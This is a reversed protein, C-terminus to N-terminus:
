MANEARDGRCGGVLSATCPQSAPTCSQTSTRTGTYNSGGSGLGGGVLYGKYNEPTGALDSNAYTSCSSSSNVCSQSASNSDVAKIGLPGFGQCEEAEICAAFNSYVAAGFQWVIPTSTTSQFQMTWTVPMNGPLGGSQICDFTQGSACPPVTCGALFVDGSLKLPIREGWYNLSNYYTLVPTGPPNFFNLTNVPPFNHCQFPVGTSQQGFTIMYQNVAVTNVSTPEGSQTLAASFWISSGGSIPTSNFHSLISSTCIYLTQSQTSVSLPLLCFMVLFLVLVRAAHQMMRVKEKTM